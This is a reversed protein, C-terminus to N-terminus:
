PQYEKELREVKEKMSTIEVSLLDVKELLASLCELIAKSGRDNKQEEDDGRIFNSGTDSM